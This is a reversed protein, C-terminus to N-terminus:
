QSKVGARFEWPAIANADRWLGRKADRAELETASYRAREASAQEREYKKFHWALGAEIQKMNIDEAGVFVTAVLRGYRDTKYYDVTVNRQFVLAALHQRSVNGFAQRKEPADIGALRIKHQQNGADLVTVTDGDTVGVVRGIFQEASAPLSLTILIFAQPAMRALRDLVPALGAANTKLQM